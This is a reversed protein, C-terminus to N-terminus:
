NTYISSLLVYGAMIIGIPWPANGISLQLYSDNAKRYERQQMYHVIEAIRLLVDPELSRRRLAKFLPKIYSATQAHLSAYQRGSESLRVDEPRQALVTEWDSLLGKLTYYLIPYVRATDTWMLKLDMVTHMGIGERQSAPVRKSSSVSEEREDAASSPERPARVTAQKEIQEIVVERESAQLFRKGDNHGNHARVDHEELIELTRLRQRRDKDTEGFLRIPEGKQRLRKTAEENSIVFREVADVNSIPISSAPAAPQMSPSHAQPAAPTAGNTLARAPSTDDEADKRTEDEEANGASGRRAYKMSQDAEDRKRKHAAIQAKLADM